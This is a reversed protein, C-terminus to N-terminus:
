ISNNKLLGVFQVISEDHQVTGVRQSVSRGRQRKHELVQALRDDNGSSLYYFSTSIIM